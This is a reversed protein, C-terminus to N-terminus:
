VAILAADADTTGYAYGSQVEVARAIVDAYNTADEEVFVILEGDQYGASGDVGSVSKAASGDFIIATYADSSGFAASSQEPFFTDGLYNLALLDAGQGRDENAELTFVPSATTNTGTGVAGDLTLTTTTPVTAVRVKPILDEYLVGDITVDFGACAVVSIYQGVVIGHAAASTLTVVGSSEAVATGATAHGAVTGQNAASTLNSLAEISFLPFGAKGTIDISGSGSAVVSVQLKNGAVFADIVDKLGAEVEANTPASGEKLYSIRERGQGTGAAANSIDQTIYFSYESDATLAPITVTDTQAYEKESKEIRLASLLSYVRKTYQGNENDYFIVDGGSAVFANDTASTNAIVNAGNLVRVNQKNSSASM